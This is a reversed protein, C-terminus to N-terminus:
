SQTSPFVRIEKGRLLLVLTRWINGVIKTVIRALKKIEEAHDIDKGFRLRFNTDWKVERM